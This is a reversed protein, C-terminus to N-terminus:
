YTSSNPLFRSGGDGPSSDNKSASFFCREFRVNVASNM